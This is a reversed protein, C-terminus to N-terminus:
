CPTFLRAPSMEAAVQERLEHGISRKLGGCIEPSRDLQGFQGRDQRLLPPPEVDAAACAVQKLETAVLELFRAAAIGGFAHDRQARVQADGMLGVMEQEGKVRAGEVDDRRHAHIMM